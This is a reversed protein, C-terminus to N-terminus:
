EVKQRSQSIVSVDNRDCNLLMVNNLITANETKEVSYPLEHM